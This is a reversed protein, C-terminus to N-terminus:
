PKGQVSLDNEVTVVGEVSRALESAHSQAASDPASGRLVVRGGSTDVNIALDNLRSDGALKAKVAATIALDSSVNVVRDAANGMAQSADRGAQKLTDKAQEAKGENTAVAADLKQGASRNDDTRNCGPVTVLALAALVAAACPRFTSIANM